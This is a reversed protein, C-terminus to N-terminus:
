CGPSARYDAGPISAYGVRFGTMATFPRNKPMRRECKIFIGTDNLVYESIISPFVDQPSTQISWSMHNM